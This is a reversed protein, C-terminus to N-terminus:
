KGTKFAEIILASDEANIKGDDNMDGIEIYADTNKTKFLEIATAADDATIKGDNNLDGKLIKSRVTIICEKEVGQVNLTIVTTGEGVATVVGNKVIAVNEDSSSWVIQLTNTLSEPIYLPVFTETNGLVMIDAERDLEVRQAVAELDTVNVTCSNTIDGIRAYITAQGEGIATVVGKNNVKAVDEDSSVWSITTDDTTTVPSYTLVLTSNDGKLLELSETNLSASVLPIVRYITGEVKPAEVNERNSDVLIDTNFDVKNEYVANNKIRFNVTIVKGAKKLYSLEGKNAIYAIKIEGKSEIPNVITKYGEKLVDGLQYSIYQLKTSDYGIIFDGALFDVDNLMDIKVSVTEGVQGTVNEVKFNANQSAYTVHIPAVTLVLWIMLTFALLKWRAM